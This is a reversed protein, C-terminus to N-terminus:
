LNIRLQISSIRKIIEHFSRAITQCTSGAKTNGFFRSPREIRQKNVSTGAQSLGVQSLGDPNFYLFQHGFLDDQVDRSVQELDLEHICGINLVLEGIEHVKILHNIHQDNIIYLIEGSFRPRLICIEVNEVM